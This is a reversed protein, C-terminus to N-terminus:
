PNGASQKKDFENIEKALQEQIAQIAPAVVQGVSQQAAERQIEQSVDRMFIIHDALDNILISARNEVTQQDGTLAQAQKGYFFPVSYQWSEALAHADAASAVYLATPNEGQAAQLQTRLQNMNEQTYLVYPPAAQDAQTRAKERQEETADPPLSALKQQTFQAKVQDYVHLPDGQFDAGSANVSQKMEDKQQISNAVWYCSNATCNSNELMFRYIEKTAPYEPFVDDLEDPGMQPLTQRDAVGLVPTLKTPSFPINTREEFLAQNAERLQTIDADDMGCIGQTSILGKTVDCSTTNGLQDAPDAGGSLTLLHTRLREAMLQQYHQQQTQYLDEKQQAEQTSSPNPYAVDALLRAARQVARAPNILDTLRVHGSRDRASRNPTANSSRFASHVDQAKPLARTQKSPNRDLTNSINNTSRATEPGASAVLTGDPRPQTESRGLLRTIPKFLRALKSDPVEETRASNIAPATRARQEQKVYRTYPDEKINIEHMGSPSDEPVQQRILVWEVNKDVPVVYVNQPESATDPGPAPEDAVEPDLGTRRHSSALPQFFEESPMQTQRDRMGSSTQGAPHQRGFLKAMRRVLSTLPNSTFIQPKVTQAAQNQAASKELSPPVLFPLMLFLFLVVCGTVLLYKVWKKM